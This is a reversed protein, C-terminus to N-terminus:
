CIAYNYAQRGDYLAHTNASELTPPQWLLSQEELHAYREEMWSLDGAMAIGLPQEVHQKAGNCVTMFLLGSPRDIRISPMTDDPSPLACM